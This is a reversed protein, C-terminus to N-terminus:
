GPWNTVLSLRANHIDQRMVVPFARYVKRNGYRYQFYAQSLYICTYRLSQKCKNGKFGSVVAWGNSLVLVMIIYLLMIFLNLYPLM